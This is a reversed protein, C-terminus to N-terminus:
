LLLCVTATNQKLEKPTKPHISGGNSVNQNDVKVYNDGTKRFCTNTSTGANFHFM